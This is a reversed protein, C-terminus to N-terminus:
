KMSILLIGTFVCTASTLRVKTLKEGLFLASLIVVFIVSVERLAAIVGIAGLHLAWLFVGYSFCAIIGSMIYEYKYQNIKGWIESGRVLRTLLLFVMSDLLFLWAVYSLWNNSLKSGIGDVVTYVGILLGICMATLISKYSHSLKRESILFMLGFSILLSGYISYRHADLHILFISILLAVLPATGRAFPFTQSIESFRYMYSLAFKYVVHLVVSLFLIMFIKSDPIEVFFVLMIGLSGSFLHIGFLNALCDQSTKVRVHWIAHFLGALLVLGIVIMGM